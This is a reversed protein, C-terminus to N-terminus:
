KIVFYECTLNVVDQYFSLDNQEVDLINKELDIINEFKCDECIQTYAWILEGLYNIGVTRIKQKLFKKPYVNIYIVQNSDFFELNIKFDKDTFRFFYPKKISDGNQRISNDIISDGLIIFQSPQLVKIPFVVEQGRLFLYNFNLILFIITCKFIHSKSELIEYNIIKM